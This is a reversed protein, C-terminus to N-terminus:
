LLSKFDEEAKNRNQLLSSVKLRYSKGKLMDFCLLSGTLSNRQKCFFSLVEWAQYCAAVGPLPGIVGPIVPMIDATQEEPFLDRYIPAESNENWLAVQGEFGNISAYSYPIKLGVSVTDMLYRVDKGDTGDIILDCGKTLNLANGRDFAVAFSEIKTYPNLRNLSFKACDVKLKGVEDQRYIIQRQLNTESVSDPDVIRLRGIGAACLYSASVSGLGGVGVLLVSAKKLAEQGHLGIQPLMIQRQYRVEEKDSMKFNSEIAM